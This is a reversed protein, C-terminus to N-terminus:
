ARSGVATLEGAIECLESAPTFFWQAFQRSDAENPRNAQLWRLTVPEIRLKLVSAYHVLRHWLATRHSVPVEPRIPKAPRDFRVARMVRRRADRRGNQPDFVAGTRLDVALANLTFDVQNLVDVINECPWLGNTFRRIPILDAASAGDPHPLWRPAGYPGRLVRGARELEGVLVEMSDGDFFLDFDKSQRASGLLVQRVVGGGLYVRMRPLRDLAARLARYGPWANLVEFVANQFDGTSM